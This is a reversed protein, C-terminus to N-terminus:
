RGEGEDVVEYASWDIADADVPENLYSEFKEPRFLTTPRLYTRMREDHLWQAAKLDIVRCCDAVTYGEALRAGIYRRSTEANPRYNTGCVANLHSIVESVQANREDSQNSDFAREEDGERRVESEGRSVEGRNDPQKIESTEESQNPATAGNSKSDIGRKSKSDVAPNSKRGAGTNSRKVSLNVREKCLVFFPYCADTADPEEGTFGYRLLSLLFSEGQKGKMAQAADWMDDQITVSM